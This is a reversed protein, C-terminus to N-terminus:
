KNKKYHLSVELTRLQEKLWKLEQQAAETKRKWSDVESKIGYAANEAMMQSRELEAQANRRESEREAREGVLKMELSRKEEELQLVALRASSFKEKLMRVEELQSYYMREFQSFEESSPLGMGGGGISKLRELFAEGRDRFSGLITTKPVASALPAVVVSSVSMSTNEVGTDEMMVDEGMNKNMEDLGLGLCVV